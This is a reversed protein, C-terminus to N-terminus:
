DMSTLWTCMGIAGLFILLAIICGWTGPDLKPIGTALVTRLAGADQPESTPPESARDEAAGRPAIEAAAKRANTEYAVATQSEQFTWRHGCRSCTSRDGPYRVTAGVGYLARYSRVIGVIVLALLVVAIAGRLEIPMDLVLLDIFAFVLLIWVTPDRFLRRRFDNRKLEDSYSTDVTVEDHGCNPCQQQSPTHTTM